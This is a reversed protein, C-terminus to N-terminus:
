YTSNINSHADYSLSLYQLCIPSSFLNPMGSMMNVKFDYNHVAIQQKRKRWKGNSTLLCTATIFILFIFYVVYAYYLSSYLPLSLLIRLLLFSAYFYPNQTWVVRSFFILFLSQTACIEIFRFLVSNYSETFSVAWLGICLTTISTPLCSYKTFLSYVHCRAALVTTANNQERVCTCVNQM